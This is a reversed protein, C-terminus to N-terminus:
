AQGQGAPETLPRPTVPVAEGLPLSYILVRDPDKGFIHRCAAAYYSLQLGHRANFFARQAATDGYLHKPIRDTKYDFLTLAGDEEEMIGDMVGQVLLFEDRLVERLAPDATFSAAPLRVHFRFERRLRRARRIRGFFASTRFRELEDLRVEAASEADLFGADTLRRVEADAGGRYLADFDCFQLVCHTATGKRAAGKPDTGGLVRPLLPAESDSSAEPLPAGESQDLVEPYLRSVSLKGPIRRLYRRPYSFSFLDQLRQTLASDEVPTDDPVDSLSGTHMGDATGEQRDVAQRTEPTQGPIGPTDAEPYCFQMDESGTGAGCACMLLAAHSDARYLRYATLPTDADRQATRARSAPVTGTVYLRERARTLAVYLLRMEEEAAARKQQAAIAYTVPNSMRAFGTEDRLKMGVGLTSSFLLPRNRDERNYLTGTGSVFCVPFELGKSAHMTMIRVADEGLAGGPAPLKKGAKIIQGIYAIFSYLGRFGSSEFQLAFRYLQMLNERSSANGLAPLGTERYLNWLLRDAALGEAQRRFQELQTLFTQGQTFDPHKNCYTCLADYLPLSSDEEQRIEALRDPTVGFLPSCLVGALYVDRRPNDVANLLCLALMVEPSFFLNTEEATVAAIGQEALAALWLPIRTKNRLLIAIDSPRLPSGDNRHETRILRAIEQAVYRMEPTIPLGPQPTEAPDDAEDEEAGSGTRVFWRVVPMRDPVDPPNRKGFILRDAEEYGISGGALGLVRDFVANVFDVIGKDCRFNTSMFHAAAPASEDGGLPPFARRLAAFISPDARRFSYISQKIDGVMFRNRPTSLHEFIAHQVPNIDQYEDIYVARFRAAEERALPSSTGDPNTLLRLTYLELDAYDCLARRRKEADFRATFTDMLRSLIKSADALTALAAGWAPADYSFWGEKWNKLDEKFSDRVTRAQETEDCRAARGLVPPTYSLLAQRLPTYGTAAAKLAGDLFVLDRTFAPEYAAHAAENGALREMARSLQERHHQLAAVTEGILEHGWPSSEPATAAHATMQDAFGALVGTREPFSECRQYLGILHESLLGQTRAGILLESFSCFADADAIGPEEGAFCRELLNEMIEQMLLHRESDEPIRFGTSLGLMGAHSRLFSSCFADITCIAATPLLAQQRALHRNLPDRELAATVADAIRERLEAAAANTFTVVLLESVDVPDDPDTISAIIRETLTATKGSGAAACVLLTRGRERIAALQAPTPQFAM